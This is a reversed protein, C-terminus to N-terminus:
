VGREVIQALRWRGGDGQQLVTQFFLVDCNVAGEVREKASTVFGNKIRARLRDHNPLSALGKTWYALVLIRPQRDWRHHALLLNKVKEILKGEDTRRTYREFEVAVSPSGAPVAFWLSDSRVDDGAFAYPGSQPAPMEAIANFGFALGMANWYSVGTSHITCSYDEVGVATWLSMHRHAVTMERSEQRIRDVLADGM